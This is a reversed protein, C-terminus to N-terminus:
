CIMSKPYYLLTESVTKLETNYYVHQDLMFDSKSFPNCIIHLGNPTKLTTIVNDKFESRCERIHKYVQTLSVKTVDDIDVIWKEDITKCEKFANSYISKYDINKNIFKETTLKIIQLGINSINKGTLNIYARANFQDCITIIEMLYKNLKEKSNIYYHKICYTKKIGPNEKKRRLIKIEYVEDNSFNLVELINELNIINDM